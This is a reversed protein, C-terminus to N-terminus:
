ADFLKQLWPLLHRHSSRVGHDEGPFLIPMVDGGALKAIHKSNSANCQKNTNHMLLLKVNSNMLMPLSDRSVEKMSAITAVGRVKFKVDEDRMKRLINAAADIVVPGGMSWGVLAIPLQSAGSRLQFWRILSEAHIITREIGGKLPHGPQDDPYHLLIVALGQKPLDAALRGYVNYAGYTGGGGGGLPDAPGQGGGAGPCTLVLGKLEEEADPAVLFGVVQDCGDPGRRKICQFISTDNPDEPHNLLGEPAADLTLHWASTVLSSVDQMSRRPISRTVGM